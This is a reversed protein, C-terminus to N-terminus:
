IVCGNVNFFNYGSDVTLSIENGRLKCDSFLICVKDNACDPNPNERLLMPQIYSLCLM